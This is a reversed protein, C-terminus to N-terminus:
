RNNVFCKIAEVQNNSTMWMFIWYLIYKVDPASGEFRFLFILVLAMCCATGASSSVCLSYWMPLSFEYFKWLKNCQWFKLKYCKMLANQLGNSKEISKVEYVCEHEGCVFCWWKTTQKNSWNSRFLTSSNIVVRNLVVANHCTESNTGTWQNVRTQQAKSM